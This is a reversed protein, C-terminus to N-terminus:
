APAPALDAALRTPFPDLAEHRRALLVLGPQGPVLDLAELVRVVDRQDQLADGRGLVGREAALVSHLHDVDGVVAAALEVVAPAREVHKGLHHRRDRAARLDHHVAAEHAARVHDLRDNEARLADTEAPQLAQAQGGRPLGPELARELDELLLYPDAQREEAHRAVALEVGRIEVLPPGDRIGAREGGEGQESSPAPATIRAHVSRATM